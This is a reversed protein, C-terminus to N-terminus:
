LPDLHRGGTPATDSRGRPMDPARARRTGTAALRAVDAV